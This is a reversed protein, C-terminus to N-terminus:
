HWGFGKGLDLWEPNLRNVWAEKKARAWKKIQKERSIAVQVDNTSEYAVLKQLNYRSTFGSVLKNKHEYVRRELNNTMGVYYTTHHQNTLMYVYYEGDM